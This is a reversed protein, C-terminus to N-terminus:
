GIIVRPRKDPNPEALQILERVKWPVNGEGFAFYSWSATMLDMDPWGFHLGPPKSYRSMELAIAAIAHAVSVCHCAKIVFRNAEEFVEILLDQTFDSPDGVEMEIFVVDADPSLQHHERIQKDKFDREHRGPRHPVLVPFDALRLSDWLFRSHEDKFQFGITRLENVRLARSVISSLFLVIIFGGAILLGSPARVIVAVTSVAFLVTILGYGSLFAALLGRDPGEKARKRRQDLLTALSASTFLVLVGTAYAGRQHNVDAQFYITVAMNVLAFLVLLLGWRHAWQSTMGFRLLFRPLLVALATMISTGALTLMLITVVDYLTGFALGFLPNLSDGLGSIRGGHALYALARNSASGSLKLEEPPILLNTVLVSGLLFLSMLVAAATLVKRANRIRGLPREPDDNPAGRVQPMLILSLEFGSLGLSLRPFFMLCLFAILAWDAFLGAGPFFWREERHVEWKGQLILDFWDRVVDPNRALHLLGGGIILANLLLYVIVLPVALGIVNRNFGKRLMFWFTFGLVGLLLTVVLQKDFYAIFAPGAVVQSREKSWEAVTALTEQWPAYQNGIVHVAADAISITKVMVFDTAAFGLLLLILSKGRWGHVLRELLAISGEGRPSRGAVYWYVPLAGGLTVLIVVLTALPGLRGALQYTMSPQYALTSFYDVGLLCMVWPWFYDRQAPAPSNAENPTPGTTGPTGM